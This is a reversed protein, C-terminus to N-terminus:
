VHTLQKEDHSISADKEETRQKFNSILSIRKAEEAETLLQVGDFWPTFDVFANISTPNASMLM